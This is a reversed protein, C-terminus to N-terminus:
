RYKIRFSKPTMGTERKFFRGFYSADSFLLQMAIASAPADSHLLLRKAELIVRNHIIHQPSTGAYLKVTDSLHGATIGLMVAYDAVVHTDFIHQNVLKTFQGVITQGATQSDSPTDDFVRQVNVIFLMLASRIAIARNQINIDTYEATMVNSLLHFRKMQNPSLPMCARTEWNFFTFNEPFRVAEDLYTSALFDEPFLIAYGSLAEDVEWYHIQHPAIFFMTNPQIDYVEFDITYTGHGAEIIFFVYFDHRRIYRRSDSTMNIRPTLTEIRCIEFQITQDQPNFDVRPIQQNM